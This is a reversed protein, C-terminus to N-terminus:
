RRSAACDVKIVDDGPDFDLQKVKDDIDFFVDFQYGFGSYDVQPAEGGSGDFEESPPGMISKVKARSMGVELSCWKRAWQKITEKSIEPEDDLDREGDIKWEGGARVLQYESRSPGFSSAVRTSVVARDGTVRTATVRFTKPKLLSKSWASAVAVLEECTEVDASIGSEDAKAEKIMQRSYRDTAAGCAREADGDVIAGFNDRVLRAVATKDQAVTSTRGGSRSAVSTSADGGCGFVSLSLAVVGALILARPRNMHRLRDIAGRRHSSIEFEGASM